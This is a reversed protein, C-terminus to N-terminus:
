HKGKLTRKIKGAARSLLSRHTIVGVAKEFSEGADIMRYFEETRPHIKTPMALQQNHDVIWDYDVEKLEMCDRIGALLEKGKETHFLITSAGKEMSLDPYLEGIHHADCVTIDSIREPRAYICNGCAERYALRAYYLQLYADDKIEFHQWSGDEFDVRASRSSVKGNVPTKDRFSWSKITKGKRGALERLHMELLKQSPAGHCVLDVLLLNDQEGAINRFAAVQCPTGSFLVRKGARVEEAARQYIQETDSLIYKSKSFARIDEECYAIDNVARFGDWRVGCVADPQWARVVASFAGGSSSRATVDADKHVGVRAERVQRCAAPQNLMPCTKECKKCGICLNEDVEPYFFGHRDAKMVIASKPCVDRCARCGSCHQRDPLNPLGSSM